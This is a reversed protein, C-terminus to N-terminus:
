KDLYRVNVTIYFDNNLISFFVTKSLLLHFFKFRIITSFKLCLNIVFIINRNDKYLIQQCHLKLSLQEHYLAYTHHLTVLKYARLVSRETQGAAFRALCQDLRSQRSLEPHIASRFQISGNRSSRSLVQFICFSICMYTDKIFVISGDPVYSYIQKQGSCFLRIDEGGASVYPLMQTHINNLKVTERCKGDVLDWTCMEGSESSSVIFNQEMVVSARSLCMIPATHGVLLCRPTM